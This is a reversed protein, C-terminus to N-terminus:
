TRCSWKLFNKRELTKNIIYQLISLFSVAHLLFSSRQDGIKRVQNTEKLALRCLRLQRKCSLQLLGIIKSVQEHERKMLPKQNPASNEQKEICTYKNSISPRGNRDHLIKYCYSPQGRSSFARENTLKQMNLSCATALQSLLYEVPLFCKLILHLTNYCAKCFSVIVPLMTFLYSIKQNTVTTKAQSSSIHLM